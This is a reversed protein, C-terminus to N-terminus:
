TQNTKSIVKPANLPGLSGEEICDRICERGNLSVKAVSTQVGAPVGANIGGGGAGIIERGVSYSKGFSEAASAARQKATGENAAIFKREVVVSGGNCLAVLLALGTFTLFLISM